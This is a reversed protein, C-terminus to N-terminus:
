ERKYLPQVLRRRRDFYLPQGKHGDFRTAPDALQARLDDPETSDTRLASEVLIKVAFWGLWADSTMPTGTASRYRDNLQEAGYRSLTPLWAVKRTNCPALQFGAADRADDCILRLVPLQAAWAPLRGPVGLVIAHPEGGPDIARVDDLSEVKWGFLAASRAGETVGFAYGRLLEAREPDIVAVLRLVKQRVSPVGARPWRLAPIALTAAFVTELFNRRSQVPLPPALLVGQTCQKGVSTQCTTDDDAIRANSFM